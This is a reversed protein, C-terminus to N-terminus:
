LPQVLVLISGVIAFFLIFLFIGQSSITYSQFTLFLPFKQKFVSCHIGSTNFFAFSNLSFSNHKLKLLPALVNIYTRLSAELFVDFSLLASTTFYGIFCFVFGGLGSPLTNFGLAPPYMNCFFAILLDTTFVLAIFDGLLHGSPM